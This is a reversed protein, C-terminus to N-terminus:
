LLANEIEEARAELRDVMALREAVDDHTLRTEKLLAKATQRLVWVQLRDKRM